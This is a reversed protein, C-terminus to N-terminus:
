VSANGQIILTIDHLAHKGTGDLYQFSCAETRRNRNGTTSLLIPHSKGQVGAAIGFSEEFSTKKKLRWDQGNDM